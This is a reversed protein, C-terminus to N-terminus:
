AAYMVFDLWNYTQNGQPQRAEQACEVAILVQM